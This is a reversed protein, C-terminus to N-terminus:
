LTGVILVTITDKQVKFISICKIVNMTFPTSFARLQAHVGM